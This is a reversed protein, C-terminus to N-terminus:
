VGCKMERNEMDKFRRIRVYICAEEQMSNIKELQLPALYNPYNTSQKLFVERRILLLIWEHTEFTFVWCYSTGFIGVDLFRNVIQIRMVISIAHYNWNHELGRSKSFYSRTMQKCDHYQLYKNQRNPRARQMCIVNQM